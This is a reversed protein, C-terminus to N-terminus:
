LGILSCAGNGQIPKLYVPLTENKCYPCIEGALAQVAAVMLTVYFFINKKVAM